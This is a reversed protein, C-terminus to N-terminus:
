ISSLSMPLLSHHSDTTMVATVLDKRNERVQQMFVELFNSKELSKAETTVILVRTTTAAIVADQAQGHAEGEPKIAQQKRQM